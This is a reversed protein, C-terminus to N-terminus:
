LIAYVCLMDHHDLMYELAGYKRLLQISGVVLDIVCTEDRRTSRQTSDADSALESSNKSCAM